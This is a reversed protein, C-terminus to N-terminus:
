FTVFLSVMIKVFKLVLTARSTTVLLLKFLVSSDIHLRQFKKIFNRFNLSFHCVIRLFLKSFFNGADFTGKKDLRLNSVICWALLSDLHRLCILNCIM